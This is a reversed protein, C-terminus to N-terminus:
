QHSRPYEQRPALAKIGTAFPFFAVETAATFPLVVGAVIREAWSPPLKMSFDKALAASDGAVLACQLRTDHFAAPPNETGMDPPSFAACGALVPLIAVLISLISHRM